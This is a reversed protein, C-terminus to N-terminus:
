SLRAYLPRRWVHRRTRALRPERHDPRASPTPPGILRVRPVTLWPLRCWPRPTIFALRWAKPTRPRCYPRHSRWLIVLSCLPRRTHLPLLRLNPLMRVLTLRTPTRRDPVSPPLRQNSRTWSMPELLQRRPLAWRRRALLGVGTSRRLPTLRM